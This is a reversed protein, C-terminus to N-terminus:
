EPKINAARIVTSWKQTEDAIFKSFDTPSGVFATGGLEAFAYGILGGAAAGVFVGLFALVRAVVSPLQSEPGQAGSGNPPSQSSISVRRDYFAESDSTVHRYM